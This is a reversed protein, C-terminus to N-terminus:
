GQNVSGCFSEQLERGEVETGMEILEWTQPHSTVSVPPTRCTGPQLLGVGPTPTSVADTAREGGCRFPFSCCILRPLGPTLHAAFCIPPHADPSVLGADWGRPLFCTCTTYDGLPLCTRPQGTPLCPDDPELSEAQCCTSKCGPEATGVQLQAESHAPATCIGSCDVGQM